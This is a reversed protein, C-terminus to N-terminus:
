VCGVSSPPQQQADSLPAPYCWWVGCGFVPARVQKAPHAFIVDSPPVGLGLVMAMEGKSACDFGAGLGALVSVIRPDDNCKVAYFPRVRPLEARWQAYKRAVEGLDVVYFADRHSNVQERVVDLVASRREDPGLASGSSLPSTALGRAQQPASVSNSPLPQQLGAGSHPLATQLPATTTTALGRGVGGGQRDFLAGVGGGIANGGGILPTPAAM